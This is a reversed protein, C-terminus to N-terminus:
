RVLFAQCEPCTAFDDAPLAALEALATAGITIRCAGCERNLLRSVAIGRLAKKEYLEVLEVPLMAAQKARAASQLDLGSRLKMLETDIQAEQSSLSNDLEQKQAAVEDFASKLQDKREMIALELDELDSKRKALAELEHTIGQADKASSTQTLRQNDKAIRQEVLELDTEARGLETEVSDLANRADILASALQRQQDRLSSLAKGSVLENIASKARSIEQDLAGLALLDAQQNLNAKM